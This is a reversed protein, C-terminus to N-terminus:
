FIVSVWSVQRGSVMRVSSSDMNRSATAANAAELALSLEGTLPDSNNLSIYTLAVAGSCAGSNAQNVRLNISNQYILSDQATSGGFSFSSYINVTTQANTLACALLSLGVVLM